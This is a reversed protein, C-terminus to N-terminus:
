VNDNNMFSSPFRNHSNAIADPTGIRLSSTKQMIQRKEKQASANGLLHRFPVNYVQWKCQQSSALPKRNSPPSLTSSPFSEQVVFDVQNYSKHGCMHYVGQPVSFVYKEISTIWGTGTGGIMGTPM